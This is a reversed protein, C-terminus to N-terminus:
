LLVTSLKTILDNVHSYGLVDKAIHKVSGSIETGTKHIAIIPIHCFDAWGLEIGVGTAPISVEAIVLDCDKNQFLKKSSFSTGAERHPFIFEHMSALSSGELPAYLEEEYNIARPHAVYIRM